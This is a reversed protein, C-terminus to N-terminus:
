LVETIAYFYLLRSTILEAFKTGCKLRDIEVLWRQSGFGYDDLESKGKAGEHVM